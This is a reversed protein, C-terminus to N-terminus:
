LTIEKRLKKCGGIPVCGELTIILKGPKPTTHLDLELLAKFPGVSGGIRAKPHKPDLHVRGIPVGMISATLDISPVATDVVGEINVFWLNFRFRFVQLMEESVYNEPLDAATTVSELDVARAKLTQTM